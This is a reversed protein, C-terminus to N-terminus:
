YPKGTWRSVNYVNELIRNTRGYLPTVTYVCIISENSKYYRNTGLETHFYSRRQWDDLIVIDYLM